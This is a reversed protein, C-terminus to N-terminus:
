EKPVRGFQLNRNMLDRAKEWPIEAPTARWTWNGLSTGPINMRAKAGLGLIDQLPIISIRSVSNLAMRHLVEHANILTVKTPSYTKLNRKELKGITQFWGKTTNNDHTGTYVLSNPVHNFPIYPNDAMEEGFAFQLIKMGPFGFKATLEFVGNDLTGLDEAIFPMEPFTKEVEEFFATGPVNIWRGKRATKAKRPVEWSASFGRFHDLRVLDFLFLNQQLRAIWWQFDQSKLYDWDYVPTGWLQGDESFFDPPVGSVKLPLKKPNLKFNEHHAWCDVSEHNVYFPIDGIFKIKKRHACKMLRDWQSFFIFQQFKEFEIRTELKKREQNLAEPERDRLATPWSYWGRGYIKELVKYLSFDELWFSHTNCFDQYEKADSIKGFRQFATALMNLKFDQVAKFNVKRKSIGEPRQLDKKTIYCDEELLEPSILLPNGAFASYSSYPSHGYESDTPNLPLLQWYSYGSAELFDVFEYASHGLDGIGYPSPLSTIHMLIGSSRNLEM